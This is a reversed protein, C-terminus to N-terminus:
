RAPVPAQETAGNRVQWAMARAWKLIYDVMPESIGFRRALDRKPMGANWCKIVQRYNVKRKPGRHRPPEEVQFGHTFLRPTM